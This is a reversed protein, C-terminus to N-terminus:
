QELEFVSGLSSDSIGPLMGYLNGSPDAILQNFGPGDSSSFDYLDIEQWGGHTKTSPKIYTLEFVSGGQLSSNQGGTAGFLSGKSYVLGWNLGASVKSNTNFSYIVQETGTYTKTTASYVLEWAAGNGYAGGYVTTGYLNKQADMIPAGYLPDAADTTTAGFNYLVKLTPATGSPTLEYVVGYALTTPPAYGPGGNTAYGYLNGGSLLLSGLPFVGDTGSFNHLITETWHAPVTTTKKVYTLKFVTGLGSAAGQPPACTDGVVASGPFNGTGGCETTGYLVTAASSALTVGAVPQYGDGSGAVGFSYLTTETWPNGVTTPPSLKWVTGTGNAGGATTTGYLNGASDIALSGLPYQGEDPNSTSNAQFYHLITETWVSSGNPTLEFVAGPGYGLSAATDHAVVGYLNGAKDMVMGEYLPQIADPWNTGFSYIAKETYAVEATTQQTLTAALYNTDTAWTATLVCTGTSLTMTVTDGSISCSGSAKLTAAHSPESSDTATVTFTSGNLAALPAGTFTVTPKSKTVEPVAVTGATATMSNHNAAFAGVVSLLVFMAAAGKAISLAFSSKRSQM